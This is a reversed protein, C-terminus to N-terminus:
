VQFSTQRFILTCHIRSQAGAAIDTLTNVALVNLVIKAKASATAPTYTGWQAKLDLNAALQIGPLPAAVLEAYAENFTITFVGTATHVISFLEQGNATGTVLGSALTGTVGPDVATNPAFSFAVVVLDNGAARLPNPKSM